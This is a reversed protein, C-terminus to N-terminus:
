KSKLIKNGVACVCSLDQSLPIGTFIEQARQVARREMVTKTKCIRAGKSGRFNSKEGRSLLFVPTQKPEGERHQQRSVEQGSAPTITASVKNTEGERLARLGISGTTWHSFIM